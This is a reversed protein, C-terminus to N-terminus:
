YNSKHTINRLREHKIHMEMFLNDLRGHKIHVLIAM